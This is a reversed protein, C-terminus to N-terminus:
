EFLKKACTPKNNIPSELLLLDQIIIDDLKLDEIVESPFIFQKVPKVCVTPLYKRRPIPPPEPIKISLKRPTKYKLPTLILSGCSRPSDVFQM